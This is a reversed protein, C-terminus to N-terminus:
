PDPNVGPLYQLPSDLSASANYLQWPICDISAEIRDLQQNMGVAQQLLQLLLQHITAELELEPAAM